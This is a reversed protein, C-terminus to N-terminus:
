IRIIDQSSFEESCSSNGKRFSSPSCGTEKKFARNFSSVSQFGVDHSLEILKIKPSQKLIYVAEKIRYSNIFSSFNKSLHVNLIESLQQPSLDVAKALETLTLESQSFLKENAMLNDITAIVGAPDINKLRSKVYKKVQVMKQFNSLFDPYKIIIMSTFIPFCGTIFYLLFLHQGFNVKDWIWLAMLGFNLFALIFTILWDRTMKKYNLRFITIFRYLMYISYLSLTLSSITATHIKDSDHYYLSLFDKSLGEDSQLFFFFLILLPGLSHVMIFRKM